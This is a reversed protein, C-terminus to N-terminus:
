AAVGAAQTSDALLLPLLRAAAGDWTRGAAQRYGAAQLRARLPADDILRALAVAIDQPRQPDFYLAAEGLVEPLAAARAAAVPCGCAMAELPPLGYGEYLSPCVLALAQSMLAKLAADDVRGLHLVDAEAPDLRDAAAPHPGPAAAFVAPAQGGVLVLRCGARQAVSLAAWARQLGALNKTPNRSAVALLYRRAQLGHRQLASADAQVAQLADSGGPLVDFRAQPVGLVAALRAQSFASPVLRRGPLRVLRRFLARYWLGFARTYAQPHDWLAADHLTAVQAGARAPASGSLSLLLAGRAAAPLTSQEWAHLRLRAPAWAPAALERVGICQLAPVRAGAPVLLEFRAPQPQLALARDLAQVICAAYRQVGTTPQAAFKGNICIRPPDAALHVSM